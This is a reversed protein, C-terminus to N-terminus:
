NPADNSHFLHVRTLKRFTEPFLLMYNYSLQDRKLLECDQPNSKLYRGTFDANSSRKAFKEAGRNGIKKEVEEYRGGGMSEQM